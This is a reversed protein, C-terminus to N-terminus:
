SKLLGFLTDPLMIRKLTLLNLVTHGTNISPFGCSQAMDLCKKKKKGEQFLSTAQPNKKNIVIKQQNKKQKM